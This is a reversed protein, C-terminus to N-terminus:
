ASIFEEGLYAEIVRKDNKVEEPTGEMIKEGFDVVIIRKSINMVFDMHHEIIIITTKFTEQIKHFIDILDIVESPNMGAAPEDVLLLEPDLALARAIELKRQEGYPLSIAPYSEKKDLSFFELLKRTKHEAESKKLYFNKNRTISSLLNYESKVLSASLVNEFISMSKFLRLNQFTRGIGLNIRKYTPIKTIDIGKFIIKGDDPIYFGTILNFITTKGAGNPGIISLIEGKKVDFSVNSVAKIGGFNKTINKIELIKM